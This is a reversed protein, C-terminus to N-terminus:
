TLVQIYAAREPWVFNPFANIGVGTEVIWPDQHNQTWSYMGTNGFDIPNPSTAMTGLQSSPLILIHKESLIRSRTLAAVGGANYTRQTIKADYTIRELNFWDNFMTNLLGPGMASPSGGGRWTTFLNQLEGTESMTRWVKRGAVIVGPDEGTFLGMEEVWRNIDTIPDANNQDWKTFATGGGTYIGPFNIAFKVRQDDYTISGTMASIALWELRTEVAQRLRAIARLIKARAQSQMQTILTPNDQAGERLGFIRLDSELFVKKFRIYALSTRMQTILEEQDRPAEGDLTVFPAMVNEPVEINLVLEDSAVDEFPFWRSGIYNTDIPYSRVLGQLQPQQLFAPLVVGPM